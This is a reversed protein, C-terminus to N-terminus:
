VGRRKLSRGAHRERFRCHLVYKTPAGNLSARKRSEAALEEILGAPYAALGQIARDIRFRKKSTM